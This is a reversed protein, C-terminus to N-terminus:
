NVGGCIYTDGTFCIVFCTKSKEFGWIGTNFNRSTLFLYSNLQNIREQTCNGTFVVLFIKVNM